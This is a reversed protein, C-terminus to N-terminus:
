QLSPPLCAQVSREDVAALLECSWGGPCGDAGTCAATCLPGSDKRICLGSECAAPGFDCAAGPQGGGNPFCVERVDAGEQTSATRCSFGEPCGAACPVTCLRATGLDLCTGSQCPSRGPSCDDGFLGGNPACIGSGSLPGDVGRVPPACDHGGDATYSCCRYHADGCDVDKACAQTCLSQSGATLCLGTLCGAAGGEGCAEGLRGTGSSCSGRRPMCYGRTEGAGDTVPRCLFGAGFVAECAADDACPSACFSEGQFPCDPCDNVICRYEPHPGRRCDDNSACPACQRGDTAPRCANADCARGLGCQAVQRPEDAADCYGRCSNANPVCQFRGAEGHGRLALDVCGFGVPCAAAGANPDCDTGCFTEGSVVNRVCLDLPGGCEDDGLCPSCLPRGANCTRAAPVCQPTPAKQPGVPISECAYGAPCSGPPDCPSTCFQEGSGVATFCAGGAPCQADDQCPSCLTRQVKVHCNGTTPNCVHGAPCDADASCGDRKLCLRGYAGAATCRYDDPCGSDDVCARACVGSATDLAICIGDACETAAQGAPVPACPEGLPLAGSGPSSCGAVLALGLAATVLSPPVKSRSM